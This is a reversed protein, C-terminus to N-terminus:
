QAYMRLETIALKMMEKCRALDPHRILVYGDSLLTQKWDRRPHGIPLLHALVLSDGCYARLRSLGEIHTIRGQGMARKFVVATHYRRHPIGEFSHWCVSRAWERYIDFDNAFNIQDMLKAGGARCAIEGFVVEGDPKRFWELHVFGTGMGLADLVARGLKIGSAFEPEYPNRYVIQAPSIWEKNRGELPKPFYQAVSEFAPRGAIAVADYTLEDGEIYEEVSLQGLWRRQSAIRELVRDLQGADTADYTHATGAGSNPKVVVPFGLAAAASRAQEASHVQVHQPVRLNRATLRDKMISKDRFGMVTDVSMGAIGLAERLEAAVLVYPEWLCEIREFPGKQRDAGIRALVAASDAMNEVRIYGTLHRKVQEPIHDLPAEGLGTVRVGVEALGRTFDQMEEPYHPSIFLVNM